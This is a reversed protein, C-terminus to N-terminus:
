WGFTNAAGKFPGVIKSTIWGGYFDGEQAEAKEGDIFCAEVKSPYFAIHNKLESYAAKPEQYYWAANDVKLEGLELHYYNGKGKWECFTTQNSKTLVEQDIDKPPIYITPPHSTELIRLAKNSSAIRRGAFFVEVLSTVKELKPPRPYDWVSEQGKKPKEAKPNKAM